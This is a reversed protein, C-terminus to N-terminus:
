APHQWAADQARAVVWGIVDENWLMGVHSGYVKATSKFDWCLELDLNECLWQPGKAPVTGDGGVMTRVPSGSSEDLGLPTDHLSNYVLAVPVPFKKPASNFFGVYLNYFDLADGPLKGWAQLADGFQPATWEKGDKDKVVVDDKFIEWNPIHVHVGGVHAIDGTLDEILPVNVPIKGTWLGWVAVGAGAASPAMLVASDINSSVWEPSAVETLLWRVFMGGMSHSVLQVKEGTSRVVNEVFAEFERWFSEPKLVGSRWDYPAGFLDVNRTWGNQVYSEALFEFTPLLHADDLLDDVTPSRSGSSARTATGYPLPIWDIV